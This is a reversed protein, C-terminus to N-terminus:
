NEASIRVIETNLRLTQDLFSEDHLIRGIANMMQTLKGRSMELQEECKVIELSEKVNRSVNLRINSRNNNEM